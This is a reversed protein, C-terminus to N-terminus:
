ILVRAHATAAQRTCSMVHLARAGCHGDIEFPRDERLADVFSQHVNPLAGGGSLTHPFTSESVTGAIYVLQGDTYSDQLQMTLQGSDLVYRAWGATGNIELVYLPTDTHVFSSYTTELVATVGGALGYIATTVDDGKMPAHLTNSYAQVWEIDSHLWAFLDIMHVGLLDLAGSAEEMRWQGKQIHFGNSSIMRGRLSIMEGFNGQRILRRLQQIGPDGRFCMYIGLQRGCRISADVMRRAADLTDAMPKQCLVHKGSELCAITVAEHFRNPVAIDVWDVEPDSWVSDPDDTWYPIGFQQAAAHAKHINPDCLWKLRSGNVAQHAPLHLAKAIGGIGILAAKLVTM